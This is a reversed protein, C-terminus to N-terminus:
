PIWNEDVQFLILYVTSRITKKEFQEIITGDNFNIKSLIKTADRKKEHILLVPHMSSQSDVNKIM